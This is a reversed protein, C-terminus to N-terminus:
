GAAALKELYALAAAVDFYDEALITSAEPLIEQLLGTIAPAETHLHAHLAALRARVADMKARRQLIAPPPAGFAAPLPAPAPAALPRAPGITQRTTFEARAAADGQPIAPAAPPLPRAAQRIEQPSIVPPLMPPGGLATAAAAELAAASPTPAPPAEPAPTPDTKKAM